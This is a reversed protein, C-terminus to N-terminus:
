QARKLESQVRVALRKRCWLAKVANPSRGLRQAIDKATLGEETLSELQALEEKTIRKGGM